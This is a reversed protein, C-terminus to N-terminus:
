MDGTQEYSPSLNACLKLTESSRCCDIHMYLKLGDACMSMSMFMSMCMVIYMYMCMYMYMRTCMCECFISVCICVSACLCVCVCVQMFKCVHFGEYM